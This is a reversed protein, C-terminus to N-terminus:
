TQWFDENYTLQYPLRRALVVDYHTFTILKWNQGLVFRRIPGHVLKTLLRLNRQEHTVVIDPRLKLARILNKKVIRAVALRM